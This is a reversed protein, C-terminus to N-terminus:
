QDDSVPRLRQSHHKMGCGEFPIHRSLCHGQCGTVSGDDYRSFPGDGGSFAVEGPADRTRDRTAVGTAGCRAVGTAGCRAGGMAGRRAGGMADRAADRIKGPLTGVLVRAGEVDGFRQGGTEM